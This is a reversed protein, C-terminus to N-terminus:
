LSPGRTEQEQQNNQMNQIRRREMLQCLKRMEYQLEADDYSQQQYYQHSKIDEMKIRKDKDFWIM